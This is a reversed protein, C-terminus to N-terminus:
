EHGGERYPRFADSLIQQLTDAGVREILGDVAEHLTLDGISWLYARAKTREIFADVLDVRKIAVAATM